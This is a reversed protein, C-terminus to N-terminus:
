IIKSGWPTTDTTPQDKDSLKTPSIAGLHALKWKAKQNSGLLTRKVKQQDLFGFV